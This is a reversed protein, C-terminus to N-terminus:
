DLDGEKKWSVVVEQMRGLAALIHGGRWKDKTLGERNRGGGVGGVRVCPILVSLTQTQQPTRSDIQKSVHCLPAHAARGEQRSALSDGGCYGLGGFGGPRQDSPLEGPLIIHPRFSRSDANCERGPSYEYMLHTQSWHNKNIFSWFKRVKPFTLLRPGLSGYTFPRPSPLVCSPCHPCVLPLAPVRACLYTWSM